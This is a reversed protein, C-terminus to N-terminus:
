KKLSEYKSLENLAYVASYIDKACGLCVAVGNPMQLEISTHEKGCIACRYKKRMAVMREKTEM